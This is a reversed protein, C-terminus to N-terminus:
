LYAAYIAFLNIIWWFIESFVSMKPVFFMWVVFSIFLLTRCLFIEWKFIFRFVYDILVNLYALSLIYIPRNYHLGTDNDYIKVQNEFLKMNMPVSSNYEKQALNANKELKLREINEATQTNMAECM